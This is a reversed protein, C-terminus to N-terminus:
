DRMIKVEIGRPKAPPIKVKYKLPIFKLIGAMIPKIANDPITTSLLKTKTLKMLLRRLVSSLKTFATTLPAFDLSLGTAIVAKTAQKPNIGIAKLVPEPASTCLGRAVTTIPPKIVDVNKVITIIGINIIKSFLFFSGIM